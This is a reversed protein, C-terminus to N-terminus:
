TKTGWQERLEKALKIQERFPIPDIKLDRIVIDKKKGADLNVEGMFQYGPELLHRHEEPVLDVSVVHPEECGWAPVVVWFVEKGDEMHPPSVVSLLTECFGDKSFM